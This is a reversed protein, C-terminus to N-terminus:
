ISLIGQNNSENVRSFDVTVNNIECFCKKFTKNKMKRKISSPVFIIYGNTEAYIVGNEISVDCGFKVCHQAKRDSIIVGIGRPVIHGKKFKRM